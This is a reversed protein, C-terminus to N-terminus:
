AAILAWVVKGGGPAPYSGWRQAAAEVLVLGWGGPEDLPADRGPRPVTGAADWVEICLARVRHGDMRVSLRLRVPRPVEGDAETVAATVANTVLESVVLEAQEALDALEWSALVAKTHGRASPVAGPLAGLELASLRLVFEAPGAENRAAAATAILGPGAGACGTM